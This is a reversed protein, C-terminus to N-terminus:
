GQTLSIQKLSVDENKEIRHTIIADAVRSPIFGQASSLLVKDTVSVIRANILYGGQHRTLTGSLLYNIDISTSLEMYNRSFAFDGKETVMVSDTMKYDVVSIGFQHLEHMFSESIQNGLLTSENLDSDIFVFSTVGISADSSLSRINDVLNHMVGRVYHNINKVLVLNKNTENLAERRKQFHISMDNENLKNSLEDENIVDTEVISCGGVILSVLAVKLLKIM